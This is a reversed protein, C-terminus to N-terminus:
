KLAETKGLILSFVKSITQCHGKKFSSRTIGQNVFLPVRVLIQVLNKSSTDLV